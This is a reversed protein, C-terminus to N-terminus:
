GLWVELDPHAALREGSALAEAYVVEGLQERVTALRETTGPHRPWSRGVRTHMARAAGYCRAAELPEHANLHHGARQELTDGHDRAGSRRQIRLIESSWRLGARPDSELLAAVAHTLAVFLAVLDNGARANDEGVAVAADRAAAPGELFLGTAAHVARAVLTIHPDALTEGLTRGADALRRAVVYDDGVWAGAAAALLVEAADPRRDVACSSLTELGAELGPRATTMDQHLALWTSHATSAAAAVFPDVAGSRALDAARPLWHMADASRERQYWYVVLRSVATLGEECADAPGDASTPLVDALVAAVTTWNEDLWHYWRAQGPRGIRPGDAIADFVWRDRAARVQREEHADRRLAEDAHARLPALQHFRTHDQADAPPTTRLLSRRVLGALLDPVRDGSLPPLACVATAAEHTFGGPLVALRRHVIREDPTALRHNDEIATRLSAHRSEARTPNGLAIPHARLMDAVEPLSYVRARAAALELALPLGGTLQCTEAVARRDDDAMTAPDPVPSLRALFLTVAPSAALERRQAGEPVALPAVERVHEGEVDLPERSTSLVTLAPDGALLADLLVAVAPGLHECNDLVLLVPRARTFAALADVTGTGPVVEIGAVTAVHGAIRAPEGIASLDVFWVGGAFREAVDEAVGLALRTKGAGVPGTLTVVAGPHLLKGIAARDEERGVLAARRRPLGIRPRTASPTSRPAGADLAPDHVLIRRHLAVLGPGPDVGLESGLVRRAEDFVALAAAQRGARYLGLMQQEWLRERFPHAELLPRLDSVAREPQGLGLLAEVRHQQVDVHLEELRARAPDWGDWSSLGDYPRGRWAGLARESTEFANGVDGVALADAVATTATALARSDVDGDDVALRYGRDESLLLESPARPARDPELVRRLRWLLSDLSALARDPPRPGWIAEVITSTPVAEGTRVLLVGVLAELRTGGVPRPLSDQEIRLPGLDRFRMGPFRLRVDVWVRHEITHSRHSLRRLGEDPM